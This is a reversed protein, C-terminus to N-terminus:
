TFNVGSKVSRSPFGGQVLQSDEMDQQIEGDQQKGKGQVLVAV